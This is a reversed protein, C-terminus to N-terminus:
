GSSVEMIKRLEYLQFFDEHVHWHIPRNGLSKIGGLIYNELYAIDSGVLKLKATISVFQDLTNIQAGGIMYRLAMILCANANGEISHFIYLTM